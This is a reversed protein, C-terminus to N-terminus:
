HVLPRDHLRQEGLHLAVRSRATRDGDTTQLEADSLQGAHLNRQELRGPLGEALAGATRRM